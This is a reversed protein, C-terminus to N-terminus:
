LLCPVHQHSDLTLSRFSVECLPCSGLEEKTRNLDLTATSVEAEALNVQAAAAALAPKLITLSEVLKFLAINDHVKPTDPLIEINIHLLDKAGKLAGIRSGLERLPSLDKLIPEVPMEPLPSLKSAIAGASIRSGLDLLGQLPKLEPVRPLEKPVKINSTLLGSEIRNGLDLLGQLSKIEPVATPLAVPVSIKATLLGSSIRNVWSGLQDVTHLAPEAPLTSLIAAEATRSAVALRAGDVRHAIKELNVNQDLSDALAIGDQELQAITPNLGEVASLQSIRANLRSLELEGSKITEADAVRVTAYSKLLSNLHSSERGVSLLKARTPSSEDLLFVPRKQNCLQMDLDDVRNIGLIESVWDPASNRAPQRGEHIPKESDGKFYQYLVAPSGKIKRKWVLRQENELHLVISAENCGHRIISDDSEGYAMVRLATTVATSKGLNNAGIYATAGPFCPVFTHVHARVNILEIGRLGPQESSEWDFMLPALAQARVIGAEDKFFKVLNVKGELTSPDDHTIFLTQTQMAASVQAIVNFLYPAREEKIWCDPEDLVMVRRNQTRSLAAYRLGASIVNTIAGGNGELIDELGGNKELNIDLYTKNDKYESILRVIGEDPLVDQLIASLLAEFGGVSRQNALSHMGTFVRAVEEKLGNRGKAHAVGESTKSHQERDSILMGSLQAARLALKQTANRLSNANM